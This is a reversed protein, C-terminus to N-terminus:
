KAIAASVAAYLRGITDANVGRTEGRDRGDGLRDFIDASSSRPLGNDSLGSNAVDIVFPAEGMMLAIRGFAQQRARPSATERIGVHRLGEVPGDGNVAVHMGRRGDFVEAEQPRALDM